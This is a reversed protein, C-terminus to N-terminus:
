PLTLGLGVVLARRRRQTRWTPLSNAYKREHKSFRRARYTQYRDILNAEPM